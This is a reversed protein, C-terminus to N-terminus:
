PAARVMSPTCGNGTFIPARNDVVVPLARQAGGAHIEEMWSRLSPEGRFPWYVTVTRGGVKGALDTLHHAIAVTHRRGEEACLKLRDAILRLREAKRWRMIQGRELTGAETGHDM